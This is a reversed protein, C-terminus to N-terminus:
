GEEKVPRGRFYFDRDQPGIPRLVRCPNGAAVVGAPLDKTVVSGSGVVTHEGITVGPNVVTNGGIWVGDGITIPFAYEVGQRRLGPDVPHGAAFLGVHPGILVDRGITVAACDLVTLGANACFNEGVRLFCGYDCHFPPEIACHEGQAGLLERLVARRGDDDEAPLANFRAVLARARRHMATLEPDDARYLRGSLMKERETM